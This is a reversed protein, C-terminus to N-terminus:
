GPCTGSHEELPESGLGGDDVCELGAAEGTACRAWTCSGGAGEVLGEGSGARAEGSPAGEGSGARAGCGVGEGSGARAGCGAGEGAWRGEGAAVSAAAARLRQSYKLAEPGLDRRLRTVYEAAGRAKSFRYLGRGGRTGGRSSVGRGEVGDRSGGGEEGGEEGVCSGGGVWSGKVAEM